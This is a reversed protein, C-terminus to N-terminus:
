QLVEDAAPTLAQPPRKAILEACARFVDDVSVQDIALAPDARGDGGGRLDPDGSLAWSAPPACIRVARGRPGYRRPSTPGFITVTPTHIAALHSVGSDNGVYLATRSLVAALEPLSLRECLDIVEIGAARKVAEVADRDSAAGVLAITAGFETALRRALAAFSDAPWRKSLMTTGPNVAGGPHVVVLPAIAALNPLRALGARKSEAPIPYEPGRGDDTAGVAAAVRSFLESEHEDARPSVRHTLGVGRHRSDIGARIPIGALGLLGNVLPSRDLSIGLDYRGSRLQGLLRAISVPAPRDPYRLIRAVRANTALAPASWQTTVIDISAQPFRRKLVRLAPTAMLLDGLCCPKIVVIRLPSNLDPDRIPGRPRVLRDLVFAGLDIARARWTVSPLQARNNSQSM